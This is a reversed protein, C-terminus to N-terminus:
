HNIGNLKKRMFLLAVGQIIYINNSFQSGMWAFPSETDPVMEYGLGTYLSQPVKGSLTDADCHLHIQTCSWTRAVGEVAAMLLKSYGQSRFAPDILLNTVWGNPPPMNYLRCYARKCWLPLPYATPIRHPDPPQQSLEVMGVLVEKNNNTHTHNYIKAQQQQLTAVLLAHDHPNQQAIKLRFTWYVLFPLAANEFWEQVFKTIREQGGNWPINRLLYTISDEGPNGGFETICMPVITELDEATLLRITVLSDDKTTDNDAVDRELSFQVPLPTDPLTLTELAWAPIGARRKKVTWDTQAAKFFLHCQTSSSRRSLENACSLVRRDHRLAVFGVSGGILIASIFLGLLSARRTMRARKM